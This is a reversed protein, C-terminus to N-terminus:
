VFLCKLYPTIPDNNYLHIMDFYEVHSRSYSHLLMLRIFFDPPFMFLIYQLRVM